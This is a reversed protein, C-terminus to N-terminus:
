KAAFLFLFCIFNDRLLQFPLSVFLSKCKVLRDLSYLPQTKRKRGEKKGGEDCGVWASVEKQILVAVCCWDRCNKNTAKM